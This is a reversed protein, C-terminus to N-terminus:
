RSSRYETRGSRRCRHRSKDFHGEIYLITRFEGRGLKGTSEGVVHRCRQRGHQVGFGFITFNAELGGQPARHLEQDAPKHFEGAYADRLRIRYRPQVRGRTSHDAGIHQEEFIRGVGVPLPGLKGRQAVLRRRRQLQGRADPAGIKRVVKGESLAAIFQRRGALRDYCGPMV